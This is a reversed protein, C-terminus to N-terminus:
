QHTPQFRVLFTTGLPNTQVDITANHRSAIGYCIPLGLGTGLDKTTLFPTGLRPIIDQDIGQGQDSVALIIDPGESYTKITVTGGAEMAELGNRALNLILQRIEKNDLLLPHVQGLELQINKDHSIADVQILPYLAEIIQNLNSTELEVAKNRALLLFETIISNGRDIEEIMLEFVERYPTCTKECILFQLYGRVTTMPNRIEHGIGAAIQGVLNLRDLQLMEEELKKRDTIDTIMALYGIYHGDHDKVNTISYIGWFSHGARTKLKIDCEVQDESHIHNLIADTLQLDTEKILELLSMRQLEDVGYGLMDAIKSNALEIANDENVVLIGENATEVIRRYKEESNKLALEVKQRETIDRLCEVAGITSGQSDYLPVATSRIFAGSEGLAPCFNEGILVDGKRQIYSYDQEWEEQPNLVLDVLLPRRYGYFPLAYEYNSKGAIDQAKIGTIDEAAKNWVMLQGQKDVVMTPDPLSDLIESMQNQTELLAPQPLKSSIDQILFILGQKQGWTNNLLSVSMEVQIQHGDKNIHLNQGQWYGLTNLEQHAQAFDAPKIWSYTQIEDLRRGIVEAQSYKYLDEARKNWLIIRDQKDLAVVVQNLQALLNLQVKLEEAAKSTSRLLSNSLSGVIKQPDKM